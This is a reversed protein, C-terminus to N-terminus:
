VCKFSCFFLKFMVVQLAAVTQVTMLPWIVARVLVDCDVVIRYFFDICLICYRGQHNCGVGINSYFMSGMQMVVGTAANDYVIIQKVFKM